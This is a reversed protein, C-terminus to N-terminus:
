RRRGSAFSMVPPAVARFDEAEGSGGSAERRGARAVALEREDLPSFDKVEAVLQDPAVISGVQDVLVSIAGGAAPLR